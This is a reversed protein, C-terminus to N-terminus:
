RSSRRPIAAATATGAPTGLAWNRLLTMLELDLGPDLGSTPEDLFLLRPRALLEMAINVRKRQGGSLHRILKSAHPTLPRGRGSGTWPRRSRPRQSTPWACHSGCLAAARDGYDRHMVDDQPVYGMISLPCRLRARQQGRHDARGDISVQGEQAPAMGNLAKMLTTKGSGSGGVLAVFEGPSFALPTQRLDLITM